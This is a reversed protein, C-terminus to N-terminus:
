TNIHKVRINKDMFIELTLGNYVVSIPFFLASLLLDEETDERDSDDHTDVDDPIIICGLVLCKTAM